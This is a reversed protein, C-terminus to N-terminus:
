ESLEIESGDNLTLVASEVIADEDSSVNWSVDVKGSKAATPNINAYPYYFYDYYDDNIEYGASISVSPPTNDVVVQTVEDFTVRYASTYSAKVVDYKNGSIYSYDVVYYQSFDEANLETTFTFVDETDTAEVDKVLYDSNTYSNRTYIGITVTDGVQAVSSKVTGSVPVTNGNEMSQVAINNLSIQTDSDKTVVNTVTLTERNGRLMQYHLSLHFKMVDM